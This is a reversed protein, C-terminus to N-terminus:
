AQGGRASLRPRLGSRALRRGARPRAAARGQIPVGTPSALPDTHVVASGDQVGGLVEAKLSPALGSEETFAFLTGVQIGAAGAEQAAMLGEPTGVGGAVWFPLGLERM